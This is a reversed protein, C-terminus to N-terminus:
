PSVKSFKLIFRDVSARDAPTGAAVSAILKEIEPTGGTYGSMYALKEMQSRVAEIM